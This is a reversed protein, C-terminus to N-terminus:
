EDIVEKSIKEPWNEIPLYAGKKNYSRLFKIVMMVVVDYQAAGLLVGVGYDANGLCVDGDSYVHPHHYGKFGEKKMATLNLCKISHDSLDIRISFEGIQYTNSEHTIEIMGIPINLEDELLDISGTSSLKCLSKYLDEIENDSLVFAEHKDQKAIELRRRSLIGIQSRLERMEYEVAILNEEKDKDIKVKMKSIFRAQTQKNARKKMEIDFDKRSTLYLLYDDLLYEFVKLYEGNAMGMTKLDFPVYLGSSGIFGVEVGSFDVISVMDLNSEITSTHIVISCDNGVPVDYISQLQHFLYSSNPMTKLFIALDCSGIDSLFSRNMDYFQSEEFYIKKKVKGSFSRLLGKLRFDTGHIKRARDGFVVKKGM